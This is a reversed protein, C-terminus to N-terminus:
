LDASAGEHRAQPMPPRGAMGLRMMRVRILPWSAPRVTLM